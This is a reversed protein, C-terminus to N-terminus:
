RPPRGPRGYGLPLRVPDRHRARRCEARAPGGRGRSQRHSRSQPDERYPRPGACALRRVGGRWRLLGRHPLVAVRAGARLGRCSGRRGRHCRQGPGRFLKAQSEGPAFGQTAYGLFRYEKWQPTLRVTQILSKTNPAHAMSTSPRSSAATPVGCGPASTSPRRAGSRRRSSRASRCPGPPTLARGADDHAESGKPLDRRSGKRDRGGDAGGRRADM